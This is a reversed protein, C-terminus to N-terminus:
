TRAHSLSEKMRPDRLPLLPRKMLEGAFLALWVGGVGLPAALDMWHVKFGRQHITPAILWFLDVLRVLMVMVAIAALYSGSRKLDRTLLLLCPLLFHFLVIMLGVWIWNGELRHLYWPIEKPLNGAWIILFQSFAFYAWLMVFALLLKGLDHLHDPLVVASMPERRALLVAAGIAFSIASLAQGGMFLIGFITSFWEPELSMVWDISAFTATLGYLILGPGSIAELRRVLRPDPSQDQDHSSQNLFRAVVYWVVFYFVARILFFRMNLFPAKHQLIRSATLADVRAWVYLYRAGFFLPLFFLVMLPLTRTAAELVRRIVLGWAGGTLHHLMLMALCGLTIGIWFVYAILYSHFFQDPSRLAGAGCLLLGLIGIVLSPMQLRGVEPPPSYSTVNTM